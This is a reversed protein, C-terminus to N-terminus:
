LSHPSIEIDPSDPKATFQNVFTSVYGVENDYMYSMDLIGDVYSVDHVSVICPKTCGMADSSVLPLSSVECNAQRISEIIQEKSLPKINGFRAVLRAVTSNNSPVRFTKTTLIKDLNPIKKVLLRKLSNNKPIINTTASRSLRFRDAVDENLEDSYYNDFLKQNSLFPHIITLDMSLVNFQCLMSVLPFASVYDCTNFFYRNKKSALEETKLPKRLVHLELRSDLMSTCYDTIAPDGTCDIISVNYNASLNLTEFLKSISSFCVISRGNALLSNEGAIFQTKKNTKSAELLYPLLSLNSKKELIGSVLINKQTLCKLLERGVRGMGLIFIDRNM